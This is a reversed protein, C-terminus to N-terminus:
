QLHWQDQTLRLERALLRDLVRQRDSRRQLTHHEVSDRAQGGRVALPQQHRGRAAPLPHLRHDIREAREPEGLAGQLRGLLGAHERDHALPELEPMRQQARRDVM